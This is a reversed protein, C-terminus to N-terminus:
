PGKPPPRPDSMDSFTADLEDSLLQWQRDLFDNPRRKLGLSASFDHFCSQVSRPSVSRGDFRSELFEHLPVDKAAFYPIHGELEDITFVTLPAVRDMVSVRSEFEIALYKNMGIVQFSPDEVVLIPYIRGSSVLSPVVGKAVAQVNRALQSVGKPEIFKNTLVPLIVSQQRSGKVSEPLFGSKVEFVFVDEGISLAADIEGENTGPLELNRQVFGPFFFEVIEHVYLEVLVGWRSSFVNKQAEPLARFPIWYLGAAVSELLFQADLVMHRGDDLKLLPREKFVRFDTSWLHSTVRQEFDYVTDISGFRLAADAASSSTKTLFSILEQEDLHAERAVDSVDLVSTSNKKAAAIVVAYLGFLMTFYRRYTLGRFLFHEPTAHLHDIFLQRMVSDAPLLEEFMYRSRAIFSRLNRPNFIEWMPLFEVIVPLLGSQLHESHFSEIYDNAHLFIAGIPTPRYKTAPRRVSLLAKLNLLAAARNFVVSDKGEAFMRERATRVKNEFRNSLLQSEAASAHAGDLAGLIALNNVTAAVNLPIDGACALLQDYYQRPSRDGEGAVESYKLLIQTRLSDIAPRYM